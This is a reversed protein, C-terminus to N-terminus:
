ENEVETEPIKGNKNYIPSSFIDNVAENYKTAAEELTDFEGIEKVGLKAIYKNNNFSIGVGFNSM